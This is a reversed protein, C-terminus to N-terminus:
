YIIKYVKFQLLLFEVYCRTTQTYNRIYNHFCNLQWGSISSMKKKM